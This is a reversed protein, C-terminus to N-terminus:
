TAIGGQGQLAELAFGQPRPLGIQGAVHDALCAIGRRAQVQAASNGVVLYAIGDDANNVLATSQRICHTDGLLGIPLKRDRVADNILTKAAREALHDVNASVKTGLVGVYKIHPCIGGTKLAEVEEVFAVVAEASPQDLITPVLLHSGACLAQVAGTTLRPPCDIIVADFADRVAKSQLLDALNYRIDTRRFANGLLFDRINSALYKSRAGRCQLLWEVILRNDAQALDYYAAVLKLKPEQPIEKACTVFISPELDASITRTALSDQGKPPVWNGARMAMASLTGQFDLDILLVSKEWDRAWCAGINASITTKGVGGKHNAVILVPPRGIYGEYNDPQSIPTTLWLGKGERPGDKSRERRVAGLARRRSSLFCQFRRLQRWILRLVAYGVFGLVGLIFPAAAHGAKGLLWAWLADLAFMSGGLM